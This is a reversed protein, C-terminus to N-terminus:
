EKVGWRWISASYTCWFRKFIKSTLFFFIQRNFFFLILLHIFDSHNSGITCNFSFILLIAGTPYKWVCHVSSLWCAPNLFTPNRHTLPTAMWIKRTGLLKFDVSAWSSCGHLFSPLRESFVILQGYRITCQNVCWLIILKTRQSPFWLIMRINQQRIMVARGVNENHKMLWISHRILSPFKRAKQMILKNEAKRHLDLIM